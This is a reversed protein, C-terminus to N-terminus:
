IGLIAMLCIPQAGEVFHDLRPHAGLRVVYFPDMVAVAEPLEEATAIEFGTFGDMAVVDIGDRCPKPRAGLRAHGTGDRVANLDIIVTVRQQGGRTHRWKHEDVGIVAVGDFRHPDDILLRRGEELVATNATNWSV